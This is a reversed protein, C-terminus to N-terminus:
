ASHRPFALRLNHSLISLETKGSETIILRLTLPQAISASRPGTSRYGLEFVLATRACRLHVIPEPLAQWAEAFSACMPASKTTVKPTAIIAIFAFLAVVILISPSTKM